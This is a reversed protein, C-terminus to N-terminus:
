TCTDICTSIGDGSGLGNPIEFADEARAAVDGAHSEGAQNVRANQAARGGGLHQCFPVPTLALQDLRACVHIAGNRFRGVGLVDV